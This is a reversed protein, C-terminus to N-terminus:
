EIGRTRTLTTMDRSSCLEGRAAEKLGVNLMANDLARGMLFELSLDPFPNAIVNTLYNLV